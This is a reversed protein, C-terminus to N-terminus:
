FEVGSGVDVTNLGLERWMRLVRPRDDIVYKISLKSLYKEYIQKKVEIDPRTDKIPRLLVVLPSRLKVNEKLWVETVHRYNEPRASVFIITMGEDEAKLLTSYVDQRLKDTDMFHFFSDFDKKKGKVYHLRHDLNSITGDIDCVVVDGILDIKGYVPHETLLPSAEGARVVM